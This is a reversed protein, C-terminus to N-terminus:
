VTPWIIKVDACDDVANDIWESEFDAAVAQLADSTWDEINEYDGEFDGLTWDNETDYVIVALNDFNRYVNHARTVGGDLSLGITIPMSNGTFYDRVLEAIELAAEKKTMTMEVTKM